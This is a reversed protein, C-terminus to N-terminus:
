SAVGGYVAHILCVELGFPQGLLGKASTSNFIRMPFLVLPPSLVQLVM